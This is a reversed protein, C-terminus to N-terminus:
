SQMLGTLNGDADKVTAVQKGGGVDHPEEVVTGGGDVLEQITAKIDEVSWFNTPGTLGRRHGNPDFGVQTGGVNFSMYYPQDMDPGAGFLKTYFAKAAALDKVPYIITNSAQLV